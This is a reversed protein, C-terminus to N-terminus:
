AVNKKKLPAERDRMTQSADLTQHPDGLHTHISSSEVFAISCDKRREQVVQRRAGRRRRKRPSTCCMFLETQKNLTHVGYVFCRPRLVVQEPCGVKRHSKSMPTREYFAVGYAHPYICGHSTLQRTQSILKVKRPVDSCFM